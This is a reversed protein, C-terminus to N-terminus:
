PLLDQGWTVESVNDDADDNSMSSQRECQHEEVRETLSQLIQKAWRQQPFKSHEILGKLASLDEMMDGLDLMELKQQKIEDVRDEDLDNVLAPSKQRGLLEQKAERLEVLAERLSEQTSNHYQIERELAQTTKTNDEQINFSDSVDVCVGQCVILGNSGNQQEVLKLQTRLELWQHDEKSTQLVRFRCVKNPKCHGPSGKWQACTYFLTNVFGSVAARDDPHISSNQAFRRLLVHASGTTLEKSEENKFLSSFSVASSSQNYKNMEDGEPFIAFNVSSVGLNEFSSPHYNDDDDNDKLNLEDNSDNLEMFFDADLISKDPADDMLEAKPVPSDKQSVPNDEDSWSHNSTPQELHKISKQRVVLQPGSDCSGNSSNGSKSLHSRITGNSGRRSSSSYADFRENSSMPRMEEKGRRTSLMNDMFRGESCATRLMCTYTSDQEDQLMMSDM